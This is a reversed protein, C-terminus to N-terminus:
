REPDYTFTVTGLPTAKNHASWTLQAKAGQRLAKAVAAGHEYGEITPTAFEFGLEPDSREGHKTPFGLGFSDPKYSVRSVRGEALDSSLELYGDPTVTFTVLHKGARLSTGAPVDVTGHGIKTAVPKGDLARTLSKRTRALPQSPLFTAAYCGDKGRVVRDAVLVLSGQSALQLSLTGAASAFWVVGLEATVTRGDLTGKGKGDSARVHVEFAPRAADDLLEAVGRVCLDPAPKGAALLEISGREVLNPYVFAGDMPEQAILRFAGATEVGIARPCEDDCVVLVRDGKAPMPLMGPEVHLKDGVHSQSRIAAVLTGDFAHGKIATVDLVEIRKAQQMLNGSTSAWLEAQALRTPVLLVLLAFLITPLGTRM